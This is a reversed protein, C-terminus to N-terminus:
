QSQHQSPEIARKKSVVGTVPRHDNRPPPQPSCRMSASRRRTLWPHSVSAFLLGRGPVVGPRLGSGSRKCGLQVGEFPLLLKKKPRRSPRPGNGDRSRRGGGLGGGCAPSPTTRRPPPFSPPLSPAFSPTTQVPRSSDIGGRQLPSNLSATPIRHFSPTTKYLGRRMAGEGAHPPPNPHPGVFALVDPL